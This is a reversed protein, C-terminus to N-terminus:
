PGGAQPVARQFSFLHAFGTPQRRPRARERRKASAGTRLHTLHDGDANMRALGRYSNKTQLIMESYYSLIGCAVHDTVPKRWYFRAKYRQLLNLGKKSIYTLTFM